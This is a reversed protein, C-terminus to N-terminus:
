HFRKHGLKIEELIKLKEEKTFKWWTKKEEYSRFCGICYKKDSDLICINKCPSMIEDYNIQSM